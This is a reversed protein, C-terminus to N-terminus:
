IGFFLWDLARTLDDRYHAISGVPHRLLRGPMMQLIRMVIAFETGDHRVIPQMRSPRGGIATTLTAVVREAGEAVDAQLVVVLPYASRARRSSNVYLEHQM